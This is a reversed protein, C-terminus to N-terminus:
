SEALTRAVIDHVDRSLSTAAAVRRLAAEARARRTAELARWSRFAGMLRAAVQPNKPDLVLVVDAVFNYGAGDIRNFQTHNVQAFSGILARVRNPNAMSFAPHATLARVRELTAVEPIAAQLALWKDIILPDDAYRLYFNELARAREPKDYLALIELAAMRDTMNDASEYQALTLVIAQSDQTAALLDLCVNKLTRRGASAADPRYPGPTIMRRHANTLAAGLREGIAARLQRRAAFIADPDVDRGVERAIDPESPPTLALAIFAPELAADALIADLAAILGDDERAAARARWAAVNETLLTM